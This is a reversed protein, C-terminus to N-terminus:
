NDSEPWKRWRIIPHSEGNFGRCKQRSWPPPSEFYHAEVIQKRAADKRTKMALLNITALQHFSKRTFFGLSAPSWPVWLTLDWFCWSYNKLRTNQTGDEKKLWENKQRTLGCFHMWPIMQTTLACILAMNIFWEDVFWHCQNILQQHFLSFFLFFHVIPQGGYRVSFSVWAAHTLVEVVQQLFTCEVIEEYLPPAPEDWYALYGITYLIHLWSM